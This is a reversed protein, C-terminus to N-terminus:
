ACDLCILRKPDALQARRKVLFCSRCTFEGEGIIVPAKSVGSPVSEDDLRVLDAEGSLLVDLSEEDEEAVDEDDLETDDDDDEIDSDDLEADDATDDAGDADDADNAVLDDIEDDDDIETDETDEDLDHHGDFDPDTAM